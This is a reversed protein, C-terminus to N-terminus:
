LLPNLNGGGAREELLTPFVLILINIAADIM